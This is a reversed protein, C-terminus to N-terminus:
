RKISNQALTQCKATKLIGLYFLQIIIQSEVYTWHCWALVNLIFSWFLINKYISVPHLYTVIFLKPMFYKRNLNNLIYSGNEDHCEMSSPRHDHIYIVRVWIEITDGTHILGHTRKAYHYCYGRILSPASGIEADSM